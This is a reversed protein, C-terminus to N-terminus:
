TRYRRPQENEFLDAEAFCSVCAASLFAGMTRFIRTHRKGLAEVATSLREGIEADDKDQQVLRHAYADFHNLLERKRKRSTKCDLSPVGNSSGNSSASGSGGGGSGSNGGRNAWSSM